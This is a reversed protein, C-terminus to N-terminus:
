ATKRSKRSNGAYAKFAASYAETLESDGLSHVKDPNFVNRNPKQKALELKLTHYASRIDGYPKSLDYEWEDKKSKKSTKEAGGMTRVVRKGSRVSEALAWVNLHKTLHRKINDSTEKNKGVGMIFDYAEKETRAGDALWDFYTNNFGSVSSAKINVAEWAKVEAEIDKASHGMDGLVVKVMAKNCCGEMLLKVRETLTDVSMAAKVAELVNM